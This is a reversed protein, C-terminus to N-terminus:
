AYTVGDGIGLLHGSWSDDLGVQGQGHQVRVDEGLAALDEVDAPIGLVNANREIM